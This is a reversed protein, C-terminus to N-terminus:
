RALVEIKSLGVIILLVVGVVFFTIYDLPEKEPEHWYPM